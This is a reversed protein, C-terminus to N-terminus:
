RFNEVLILESDQGELSFLAWRNDPSVSFGERLHGEIRSVMETEGTAFNFFHLGFASVSDARDWFYIGKELVSFEGFFSELIKMEDGGASPVRWLGNNSRKYYLYQGDASEM